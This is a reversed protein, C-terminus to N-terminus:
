RRAGYKRWCGNGSGVAYMGHDDLWHLIEWATNTDTKVGRAVTSCNHFGPHAVLWADIKGVLRNGETTLLSHRRKGNIFEIPSTRDIVTMTNGKPRHLQRIYVM